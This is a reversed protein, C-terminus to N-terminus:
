CRWVLVLSVEGEFIRRNGELGASIVEIPQCLHGVGFMNLEFLLERAHRVRRDGESVQGVLLAREESRAGVHGRWGGQRGTEITLPEIACHCRVAQMRLRVSGHSLDLLQRLVHPPQLRVFPSCLGRHQLRLWGGKVIGFSCRQLCAQRSRDLSVDALTLPLYLLYLPLESLKLLLQGECSCLVQPMAYCLVQHRARTAAKDDVM